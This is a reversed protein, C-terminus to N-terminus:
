YQGIILLAQRGGKKSQGIDVAVRYQQGDCYKSYIIFMVMAPTIMMAKAM